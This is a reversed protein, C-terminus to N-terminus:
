AAKGLYGWHPMVLNGDNGPRPSRDWGSETVRRQVRGVMVSQLAAHHKRSYAAKCARCRCSAPIIESADVQHPERDYGTCWRKGPPPLGLKEAIVDARSKRIM